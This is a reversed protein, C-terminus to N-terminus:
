GVQKVAYGTVGVINLGVGYVIVKSERQENGQTGPTPAVGTTNPLRHSSKDVLRLGELGTRMRQSM